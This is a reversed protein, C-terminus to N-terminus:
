VCPLFDSEADHLSVVAEYLKKFSVKESNKNLTALKEELNTYILDIESKHSMLEEYTVNCKAPVQAQLDSDLKSILGKEDENGMLEFAAQEFSSGKRYEEAVELELKTIAEIDEGSNALQQTHGALDLRKQKLLEQKNGSLDIYKPDLSPSFNRVFNNFNELGFLTSILETQKQPALSAIRSFSDIRNKEVFCFRYFPENAEIPTHNGSLDLAEIEPEEFSDTFANKLYHAHNRFRKNEAEEVHGLLGYVLAECFSSKGSGNPGFVLVLSSALNFEEQRAFGRFPGVRLNALCKIGQQTDTAQDSYTHLVSTVTEWDREALEIIKKIRHGHSTSLPVIDDLNDLILNAMKRVNEPTTEDLTQLFRMYEDRIMKM